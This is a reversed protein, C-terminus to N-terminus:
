NKQLQNLYNMDKNEKNLSNSCIGKSAGIIMSFINKIAACAEVGVVDTTISTHYYETSLIERLWKVTELNKNAFIVSTHVRNALGSALCPGGVASINLNNFGKKILFREIKDILLEYKNDYISLGKTLM